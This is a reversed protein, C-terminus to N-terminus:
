EKKQLEEREKQLKEIENQYDNITNVYNNKNQESKEKNAKATDMKKKVDQWAQYNNESAKKADEYDTKAKEAKAKKEENEPDADSAAQAEHYATELTKATSDSNSYATSFKPEEQDRITEYEKTYNKINEEEVEISKNLVDIKAQYDKIYGNIEALRISNDSSPKDNIQPKNNEKNDDKNKDKVDQDKNKDKDEDKDKKESVQEETSNNDLLLKVGFGIGFLLCVAVFGIIVYTITKNMKNPDIQKKQKTGEGLFEKIDEETIEEEEVERNEYLYVSEEEDQKPESFVSRKQNDMIVLTKDGDSQPEKEEKADVEIFNVDNEQETENTKKNEQKMEEIKKRLEDDEEYANIMETLDFEDDQFNDNKM